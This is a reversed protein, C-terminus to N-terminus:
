PELPPLNVGRVRWGGDFGPEPAIYDILTTSLNGITFSLAREPEMGLATALAARISGGHAFIVVDRNGHRNALEMTAESVREIVDVFSEGGPAREHAPALWFRHYAEGREARLADHTWGHWDGFSQEGYRPEEAYALNSGNHVAIVADATQKTRTLHTTLWVGDLPLSKALAAYPATETIEALRDTAGYIISGAGPVPAHRVLHFRTVTTM